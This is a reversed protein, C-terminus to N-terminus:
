PNFGATWTGAPTGAPPEGIIILTDPDPVAHLLERGTEALPPNAPSDWYWVATDATLTLGHAAATLKQKDSVIRDILGSREPLVGTFNVPAYEAFATDITGSAGQGGVETWTGSETGEFWLALLDLCCFTSSGPIWYCFYQGNYSTTGAIQITLTRFDPGGGTGTFRTGPRVVTGPEDWEAWLQEVRITNEDWTEAEAYEGTYHTSTIRVPFFSGVSWGHAAAQLFAEDNVWNGGTVNGTWLTALRSYTDEWTAVHFGDYQGATTGYFKITGRAHFQVDGTGVIMRAEYTNLPPPARLTYAGCYHWSGAILWAEGQPDEQALNKDVTVWPDVFATVNCHGDNSITGTFYVQDGARFYLGPAVRYRNNAGDFELVADQVPTLEMGIVTNVAPWPKTGDVCLDFRAANEYWTAGVQPCPGDQTPDQNYLAYLTDAEIWEGGFFTYQPGCQTAPITDFETDGTLLKIPLHRPNLNHPMQCWAARYRHTGAFGPLSLNPCYNTNNCGQAVNVDVIGHCPLKFLPDLGPPAPPGRGDRVGLASRFYAGLASRRSANLSM